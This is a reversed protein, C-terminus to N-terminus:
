YTMMERSKRIYELFYGININYQPSPIWIRILYDDSINVYFHRIVAPHKNVSTVRETGNDQFKLSLVCKDHETTYTTSLQPFLYWSKVKPM